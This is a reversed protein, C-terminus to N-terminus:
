LRPDNTLLEIDVKNEHDEGNQSLDDEDCSDEGKLPNALLKQYAQPYNSGGTPHDTSDLLTLDGGAVGLSEPDGLNIQLHERRKAVLYAQMIFQNNQEIANGAQAGELNVTLNNLADKSKLSQARM